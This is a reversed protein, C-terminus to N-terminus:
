RYDEPTQINKQLHTRTRMLLFPDSCNRGENKMKYLIRKVTEARFEPTKKMWLNRELIHNELDVKSQSIM